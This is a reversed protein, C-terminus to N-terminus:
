PRIALLYPFSPSFSSPWSMLREWYIRNSAGVVVRGSRGWQEDFGVYPEGPLLNGAVDLQWLHPFIPTVWTEGAIVLRGASAGAGTLRTTPIRKTFVHAGDARALAVVFSNVDVEGSYAPELTPGGFAIAQEFHGGIVVRGGLGLTMVDVTVDNAFSRVWREAGDPDHLSVAVGGPWTQAVAFGDPALVAQAAGAHVQVGAGGVVPYRRIAAVGQGTGLVISVGEADAAIAQVTVDPNAPETRSWRPALQATLAHLMIQGGAARAVYVNGAADAAVEGGRSVEGLVQGAAGLKWTTGVGDSVLVQEDPLPAVSYSGERSYVVAGPATGRADCVALEGAPGDAIAALTDLSAVGAQSPRFAYRRALQVVDGTDPDQVYVSYTHSPVDVIVRVAYTRGVEFPFVVDARYGAGDRVDIVGSPAFRVAAALQGFSTVAGRALGIVGDAGLSSVRAELQVALLTSAPELPVSAFGGGAGRAFCGDAVPLPEGDPPSAPDPEGTNPGAGPDGGEAAEDCAPLQAVACGSLLISFLRSVRARQM